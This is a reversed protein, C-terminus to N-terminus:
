SSITASRTSVTELGGAQGLPRRAAWAERRVLVICLWPSCQNDSRYAQGIERRYPYSGFTHKPRAHPDHRSAKYGVAVNYDSLVWRQVSKSPRYPRRSRLAHCPQIRGVLDAVSLSLKGPNIRIRGVLDTVSLSLKGPNIRIRGVLDTVSLLLKGPNICARALRPRIARCISLSCVPLEETSPTTHTPSASAPGVCVLLWNALSARFRVTAAPPGAVMAHRKRLADFKEARVRMHNIRLTLTAEAL